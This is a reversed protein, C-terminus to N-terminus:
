TYTFGGTKTINGGSARQVVVDVLGAAHAPTKVTLSTPSAVNLATGPTGGFTVGTVGIFNTGTLTVTLNGAAVGTAPAVTTLTSEKEFALAVIANSDKIRLAFREFVAFIYSGKEDVQRFEATPEAVIAIDVPDGALSLVLGRNQFDPPPAPATAPPPAPATAPPPAPAYRLDIASAHLIERGILPELRDRPVSSSEDTIPTNAALFPGLGFVCVHPAVYGHNDLTTIASLIADTLEKNKLEFQREVKTAGEILGLAGPNRELLREKQLSPRLHAIPTEVGSLFTWNEPNLNKLYSVDPGYPQKAAENAEVQLPETSNKIDEEGALDSAQPGARPYQGNFIYWDELQGLQTARRRFELLATSLDEEIVQQRNLTVPLSIELVAATAQDDVTGNPKLVESPVVQTGRPLPGYAPLFSGAVRVQHWARLVEERVRNWQAETWGVQANRDDM